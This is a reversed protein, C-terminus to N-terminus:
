PSQILWSSSHSWFRPADRRRLCSSCQQRSAQISAVEDRGTARVSEPFLPTTCGNTEHQTQATPHKEKDKTKDKWKQKAQGKNGDDRSEENEMPRRPKRPAARGPNADSASSCRADAIMHVCANLYVNHKSCFGGRQLILPSSTLFCPKTCGVGEKVGREVVKEM